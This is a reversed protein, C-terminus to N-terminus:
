PKAQDLYSVPRADTPHEVGAVTELRRLHEPPGLVVLHDGAHMVSEPSPNFEMHGNARQIAVVIVHFRQRLNAALITRGTIESEPELRVQEMTLELNESSTALQVFDVVAPRLATQAIQLAGIQYPSIVRDAGARQLKRRADETEARGVIFLDSRLLRATLVIYVNEADTGVASILGRAREIGVRKLVEESTADASVAIRGSEVAAQALGADQEVVVFPVGQRRFEETITRGIRGYGCVIFHRSLQSLMRGRQRSTWRDHLEGEILLASLASLAYLFTAVGAVILAANFVQGNPTLEHLERYGVTTVTTITMYFADWVTWGEVVVFGATGGVLVLLLLVLGLGPGRLWRARRPAAPPPPPPIPM